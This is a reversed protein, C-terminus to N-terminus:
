VAVLLTDFGFKRLSRELAVAQDLTEYEGVHVGYLEGQRVIQARCGLSYLQMQLYSANEYNRYLGVQVRYVYSNDGRTQPECNQCEQNTQKTNPM